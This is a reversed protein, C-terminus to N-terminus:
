ALTLPRSVPLPPWALSAALVSTWFISSSLGYPALVSLWPPLPPLRHGRGRRTSFDPFRHRRAVSCSRPNRRSPPPPECPSPRELPWRLPQRGGGVTAPCPRSQVLTTAGRRLRQCWRWRGRCALSVLLHHHHCRAVEYCPRPPEQRSPPLQHPRHLPLQQQEAAARPRTPITATRGRRVERGWLPQWRTKGRAVPQAQAPVVM